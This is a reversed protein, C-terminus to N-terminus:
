APVKEAEVPRRRNIQDDIWEREVELETALAAREKEYPYPTSGNILASIASESVGHKVALERISMGLAAKVAAPFEIGATVLLKIKNMSAAVM